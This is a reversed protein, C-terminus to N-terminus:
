TVSEPNIIFSAAADEGDTTHDEALISEAVAAATAEPVPTDPATAPFKAEKSAEPRTTSERWEILSAEGPAALTNHDEEAM